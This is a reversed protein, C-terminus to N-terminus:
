YGRGKSYANYRGVQEIDNVITLIVDDASITNTGENIVTIQWIPVGTLSRSSNAPLRFANDNTENIFVRVEESSKNLVAISMFPVFRKYISESFIQGNITVPYQTGAALAPVRIEKIFTDIM